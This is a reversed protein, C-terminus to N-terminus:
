ALLLLSSLQRSRRRHHYIDIYQSLSKIKRENLSVQRYPRISYCSTAAFCKLIVPFFILRKEKIQNIQHLLVCHYIGGQINAQYVLFFFSTICALQRIIIRSLTSFLDLLCSQHAGWRAHFTNTLM